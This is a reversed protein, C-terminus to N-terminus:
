VEKKWSRKRMVVVVDEGDKPAMLSPNPKGGFRPMEQGEVLEVEFRMLLLAVFVLAEARALFRGPCYTQGGGFPRFSANRNLTRSELFREPQWASPDEGWVATNWHLERFPCAVMANAPLLKNNIRVPRTTTRLSTTASCLRLTEDLVANFFPCDKTLYESDIKDNTPDWGREIESKVAALASPNHLLYALVWFSLKYTNTNTVLYLMSLITAIDRKPIGKVLKTREYYDIVPAMDPREERPISMYQEFADVLKEKADNVPKSGPAKYWLRWNEEDFYLFDTFLNPSQELLEVGFIGRTAVQMLVEQSWKYISVTKADGTTSLVAPGELHKESTWEHLLGCVKDIVEVSQKGAFQLHLYDNNLHAMSKGSPNQYGLKIAPDDDESRPRQYVDLATQKACGFQGMFDAVAIDFTFASTDKFLTSVDEPSTLIYLRRGGLTLFFPERSNGFYLRCRRLLDQGDNVWAMAHGLWPIWYPVERPHDPYFFPKITFSWLRWSLLAALVSALISPAHWTLNDFAQAAAVAEVFM